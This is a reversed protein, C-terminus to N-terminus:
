PLEELEEAVNSSTLIDPLLRANKEGPVYLATVPVAAKNFENKLTRTIREDYQTWDAKLLVM